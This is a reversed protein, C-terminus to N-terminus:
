FTVTVATTILIVTTVRFIVASACLITSLPSSRAWNSADSSRRDVACSMVVSAVTRCSSQRSTNKSGDCWFFFLATPKTVERNNWWWGFVELDDNWVNPIRAWGPQRLKCGVPEAKLAVTRTTDDALMQTLIDSHLLRVKKGYFDWKWRWHVVESFCVVPFIMHSRLHCSSHRGAPLAIQCHPGTWQEYSLGYTCLPQIPKNLRQAMDWKQM